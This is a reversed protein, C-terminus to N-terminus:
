LADRTAFQLGDVARIVGGRVLSSVEKAIPDMVTGDGTSPEQDIEQLGLPAGFSIFAPSIAGGKLDVIAVPDASETFSDCSSPEGYCVIKGDRIITVGHAESAVDVTKGQDKALASESVFAQTVQVDGDVEDKLYVKGVNTFVVDGRVRRGGEVESETDGGRLNGKAQWEKPLLPPLGEWKLTEQVETDFNPVKPADQFSSPKADLRDEVSTTNSLQPIGDIYVQIPTASLALPHTDWLVM